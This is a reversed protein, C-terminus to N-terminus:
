RTSAVSVAPHGGGRGVGITRRVGGHRIVPSPSAVSSFLVLALFTIPGRVSRADKSPKARNLLNKKVAKFGFVLPYPHGGMAPPPTKRM